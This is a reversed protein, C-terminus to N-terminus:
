IHHFRDVHKRSQHTKISLIIATLCPMVLSSSSSERSRSMVVLMRLIMCLACLAESGVRKGYIDSVSFLRNSEASLKEYADIRRSSRTHKSENRHMDNLAASASLFTFCLIWSSYSHSGVGVAIQSRLKLRVFERAGWIWVGFLCLIHIHCSKWALMSRSKILRAYFAQFRETIHRISNKHQAM